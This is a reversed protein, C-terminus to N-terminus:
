EHHLPIHLFKCIKIAWSFPKEKELLGYFSSECDSYVFRLAGDYLHDIKNLTRSHFM